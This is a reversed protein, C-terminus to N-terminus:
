NRWNRCFEKVKKNKHFSANDLYVAIHGVESYIQRLEALYDTFTEKNISRPHTHALVFGRDM